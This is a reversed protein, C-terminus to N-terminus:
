VIKKIKKGYVSSKSIQHAEKLHIITEDKTPFIRVCLTCQWKPSSITDKAVTPNLYYNKEDRKKAPTVDSRRIVEQYKRKTGLKFSPTAREFQGTTSLKQLQEQLKKGNRSEDQFEGSSSINLEPETTLTHQVPATVYRQVNPTIVQKRQTSFAPQTANMAQIKSKTDNPTQVTNPTHTKDADAETIFTDHEDLNNEYKQSIDADDIDVNKEQDISVHEMNQSCDVDPSEILTNPVHKKSPKLTKTSKVGKNKRVPLVIDEKEDEYRGYIEQNNVDEKASEVETVKKVSEKAKMANKEAQIKKSLGKVKLDSAVALFSSLDDQALSVEGLYMFNLINEIEKYKVGKIYILPHPHPNRQLITRFFPSCASLIVKHGQIQFDDCVLSVDFFFIKESNQLHNVLVPKVIM